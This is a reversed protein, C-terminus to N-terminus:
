REAPVELATVLDTRIGAADGGADPNTVYLEWFPFRMQEGAAGVQETFAGWAEALGGYPGVYSTIAVRAAPLESDVVKYGSPLSLAGDLVRDVPFGVELDATATPFRHHLSFAPGIPTVGAERLAGVLHSFVGDMLQPMDHMAFDTQRVVATPVAPADVIRVDRLPDASDYPAPMGGTVPTDNM